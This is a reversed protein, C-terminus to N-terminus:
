SSPPATTRGPTRLPLTFTFTSGAGPESSVQISGNHQEAIAKVISLGLGSGPIAQATASRARYFHDFIRDVEDADIGIGTDTVEIEVTDGRIRAQTDIAGGSPTFKVANDLLNMLVQRIEDAEGTVQLGDLSLEVQLAQARGQAIPRISEIADRVVAELDLADAPQEVQADETPAPTALDATIASLQGARQGIDRLLGMQKVTLDGSDSTLGDVAATIGALPSRIQRTVAARNEELRQLRETTHKQQELGNLIHLNADRSLSADQVHVIFCPEGGPGSEIRSYTLSALVERGSSHVYRKQLTQPFPRDPPALLERETLGRDSPDTFDLVSRGILEARSRGLLACMAGNVHLYVGLRAGSAGVLAVGTPADDFATRFRAESAELAATKERLATVLRRAAFGVLGLILVWLVGARWQTVPYEPEGVLILPGFQVAAVGAVAVYMSLRNGYLACWVVALILLASFGANGNGDAARLMQVAVFFLVLSLYEVQRGLVHKRILVWIAAAVITVAVGGLWWKLVPPPHHPLVPSLEAFALVVLFAAATRDMRHWRRM